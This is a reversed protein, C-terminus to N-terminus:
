PPPAALDGARCGVEEHQLYHTFADVIRPDWWGRATEERIIALAGQPTEPQRYPRENTLADFVDVVQFVRALLPIEEGALGDPYGTGNWREHHHRIIPLVSRLTRLPSCMKVGIEVHSRMIRWEEEDLPGPKLLVRDPIGIKGIDHLYGARRLAKIDAEDLGLRKGLEAALNSLRDCHDGTGVDRAEVTRAISLLIQEADDLDQTLHRFSVLNRVRVELEVLDFPKTLFDSAGLELGRLRAERSDFGTLFVVPILNTEPSAKLRQCVEYGDMEPMLVDLLIVDPQHTTAIALGEAGSSASLVKFGLPELASTVAERSDRQDDIVLVTGKAPM